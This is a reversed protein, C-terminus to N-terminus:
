SILVSLQNDFFKPPIMNLFGQEIATTILQSKTTCSFKFKLQEIHYEATRPSLNLIRAIEKATKGRVLFFLCELQRSSLVFGGISQDDIKYSSQVLNDKRTREIQYKSLYYGIKIFSDTVDVAHGAIGVINQEVSIPAKTVLMIRWKDAGCNLIEFFRQPKISQMVQKDCDQFVSALESFKCNLQYDSIGEMDSFKKFGFLKACEINAELYISNIDKKWWLLGPTEQFISEFSAITALNNKM